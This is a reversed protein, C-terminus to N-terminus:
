SARIPQSNAKHVLRAKFWLALASAFCWPILLVLVNARMPAFSFFLPAALGSIAAALLLVFVRRKPSFLVGGFQLLAGVLAVLYICAAGGYVLGSYANQVAYHQFQLEQEFAVLRLVLFGVLLCQIGFFLLQSTLPDGGLPCPM